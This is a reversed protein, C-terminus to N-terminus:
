GTAELRPQTKGRAAWIVDEAAVRHDVGDVVHAYINLCTAPSHGLQQAVYTIPRGEHILLSAFSHRLDYPRTKALPKFWRRRWNHYDSGNWPQGDSRPLVLGYPKGQKLRWEALDKALPALLKVSRPKDTKTMPHIEGRILRRDILIHGDKIQDWHLALAENYPRLGAYALLSLLVAYPQRDRELMNDRMAEVQRPVIVKVPTRGAQRWELTDAPNGSILELAYARKLIRSLLGGAQALQRRGAGAALRESQWQHLVRPRLEGLRYGGLYPDVYRDLLDAYLVSTNPSLDPTRAALWEAAFDSLLPTARPSLAELGGIEKAREVERRFRDRDEKRTFSRQRHRGAERWRYSYKKM